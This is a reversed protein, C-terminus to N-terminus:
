KETDKRYKEEIEKPIRGRVSVTIGKSRAWARILTADSAPKTSTSEIEPILVNIAEEPVGQDKLIIRFSAVVTDAEKAALKLPEHQKDWSESAKKLASKRETPYKADLKLIKDLVIQYEKAIEEVQKAEEPKNAAVLLKAVQFYVEDSSPVKGAKRVRTYERIKQIYTEIGKLMGQFAVPVYELADEETMEEDDEALLEEPTPEVEEDGISLEENEDAM